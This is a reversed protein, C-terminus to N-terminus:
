HMHSLAFLIQKLIRKAYEPEFQKNKVIHDFLEGQALVESVIYFNVDDELLEYIRIINPHNVSALM